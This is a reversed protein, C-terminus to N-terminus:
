GVWATGWASTGESMWLAVAVWQPNGTLFNYKLTVTFQLTRSFSLEKFTNRRNLL